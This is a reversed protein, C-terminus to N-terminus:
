DFLNEGFSQIHTSYLCCQATEGKSKQEAFMLIVTSVLVMVTDLDALNVVVASYAIHARLIGFFRYM